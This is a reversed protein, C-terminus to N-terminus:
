KARGEMDYYTATIRATETMTDDFLGIEVFLTTKGRKIVQAKATLEKIGLMPRMYSINSNLTVPLADMTACAIGGIVDGLCFTVGGHVAGSPNLHHKEIVIRGQAFGESIQTLEIGTYNTYGVIATKRIEDITEKM